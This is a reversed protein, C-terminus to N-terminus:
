VQSIAAGCSLECVGLRVWADLQRQLDDGKLVQSPFYRLSVPKSPILAMAANQLRHSVAVRALRFIDLQSNSERHKIVQGKYPVELEFKTPKPATGRVFGTNFGGKFVQIRPESRMPTLNMTCPHWKNMGFLVCKCTCQVERRCCAAPQLLLQLTALRALVLSAHLVALAAM